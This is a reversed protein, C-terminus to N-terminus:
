LAMSLTGGGGAAMTDETRLLDEDYCGNARLQDETAEHALFPAVGRVRHAGLSEIVWDRDVVPADVSLFVNMCRDVDQEPDCERDVIVLRFFLKKIFMANKLIM